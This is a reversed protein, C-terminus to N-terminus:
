HQFTAKSKETEWISVERVSVRPAYGAQALIQYVRVAIAEALCEGTTYALDKWYYIDEDPLHPERHSEFEQQGMIYRHDLGDLFPKFLRDMVAYDLVMGDVLRDAQLVIEVKYNHGHMHGCKPHGIIRHAASFQYIRSVYIM